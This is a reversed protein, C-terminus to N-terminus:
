KINKFINFLNLFKNYFYCLKLISLLLINSLINQMIHCLVHLNIGFSIFLCLQDLYIILKLSLMFLVIINIIILHDYHIFNLM